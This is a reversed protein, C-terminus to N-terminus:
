ARQWRLIESVSPPYRCQIYHLSSMLSHLAYSWLIRMKSELDTELSENALKAVITHSFCYGWATKEATSLTARWRWTYWYVCVCSEFSLWGIITWLVSLRVFNTFGLMHEYNSWKWCISMKKKLNWMFNVGEAVKGCCFDVYFWTFMFTLSKILFM